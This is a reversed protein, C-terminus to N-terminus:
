ARPATATLTCSDPTPRDSHRRFHRSPFYRWCAQAVSIQCGIGRNTSVMCSYAEIESRSSYSPDSGPRICCASMCAAVITGAWGKKSRVFIALDELIRRVPSTPFFFQCGSKSSAARFSFNSNEKWASFYFKGRFSIVPKEKWASSFLPNKKGPPNKQSTGVGSVMTSGRAGGSCAASSHHPYVQLRGIGMRKTHSLKLRNPCVCCSFIHEVILWTIGQCFSLFLRRRSTSFSLWTLGVSWCRLSVRGLYNHTSIFIHNITTNESRIRGGRGAATRLLFRGATGVLVDHAVCRIKVRVKAFLVALPLPLLGPTAPTAGPVRSQYENKPETSPGARGPGGGTEFYGSFKTRWQQQQLFNQERNKEM